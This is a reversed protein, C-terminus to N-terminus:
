PVTTRTLELWVTVPRRLGKQASDTANDIMERLAGADSIGRALNPLTAKEPSVDGVFLARAAKRSELTNVADQYQSQTIKFQDIVETGYRKIQAAREALSMKRWLSTTKVEESEFPQCCEDCWLSEGNPGETLVRGCGHNPCISFDVSTDM